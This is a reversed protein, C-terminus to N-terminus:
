GAFDASRAIQPSGSVVRKKATGTDIVLAGDAAIELCKGVVTQHNEKVAVIQRHLHNLRQWANTLRNSASSWEEIRIALYRLLVILLEQADHQSGTIDCLATGRLAVEAPLDRCSNNVNMGIGIVLRNKAPAAGGPSELLIGAIKRGQVLVDNPWKISCPAPLPSSPTLLETKSRAGHETSWAEIADCLAVATTLSLQPWNATTLGHAAPDILLSFTLAGAASWWRNAGRGRGATQLRAVILAPLEADLERALELARSNTSDLSEHIEVHRVFTGARITDASLFPPM